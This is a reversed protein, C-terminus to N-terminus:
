PVYQLEQYLADAVLKAFPEDINVYKAFSRQHSAQQQGDAPTEETLASLRPLLGSRLVAARAHLHPLQMRSPAYLEQRTSSYRLVWRHTRSLEAYIVARKEAIYGRMDLWYVYRYTTYRQYRFAGHLPPEAPGEYDTWMDGGGDSMRQPALGGSGRLLGQEQLMEQLRPLRSAIQDAARDEFGIGLRESVAEAYTSHPVSLLRCAPGGAQPVPAQIAVSDRFVREKSLDRLRELLWIPRQGVLLVHGGGNTLTTLTPPTVSWIRNSWDVEAHGLVQLNYLAIRWDVAPHQPHCSALWEYTERFADLTGSGRESCWMLMDDYM